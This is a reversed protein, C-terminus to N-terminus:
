IKCWIIHCQIRRLNVGTNQIEKMKPQLDAMGATSLIQKKYAPYLCLKVLLTLVVLTIGYNRIVGYLATLIWGLPTAFLGFFNM